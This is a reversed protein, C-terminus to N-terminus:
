RRAASAGARFCILSRASTLSGCSCGSTAPQPVIPTQGAIYYFYPQAAAQFKMVVQDSGSTAVSELGSSWIANLDLGKNKKLLNFTYAVDDASFPKGDSWKVGQRITFTLTKFDPSWEAKTALMPTQAGSKLTNQYVLPEYIFGISQQNVAPNFPNFGCTWTAGGVNAISLAAGSSSTPSSSCGTVVLAAAALTAATVGL